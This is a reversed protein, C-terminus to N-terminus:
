AFPNVPTIGDIASFDDVNETLIIPINERIMLAALQRDFYGRRTVGAPVCLDLALHATELTLPLVTLGRLLALSRIKERAIEPTDPPQNKPGTLNLYMEALNQASVFMAVEPRHRLALVQRAREHRPDGSLTAYILVNTDVLVRGALAEVTM